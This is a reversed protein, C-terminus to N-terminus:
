NPIYGDPAFLWQRGQGFFHQLVHYPNLGDWGSLLLQAPVVHPPRNHEPNLNSLDIDKEELFHLKLEQNEPPRSEEEVVHPVTNDFAIVRRNVLTELGQLEQLGQGLYVFKPVFVIEFSFFFSPVFPKPLEQIEDAINLIALHTLLAPPLLKLCSVLYLSQNLTLLLDGRNNAFCLPGFHFASNLEAILRGHFNWIQVSGDIGGTVFLELSLCVDFSTIACKHLCKTERFTSSQESASAM